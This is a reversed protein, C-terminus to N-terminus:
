KGLMARAMFLVNAPREALRRMFYPYWQVGFPVYIRVRYGEEALRQQWDRRVGYIMQFEFRDRGIGREKVITKARDLLRHDHTGVAPYFGRAHAEGSFSRDLLRAFSADVDRKKRWAVESPENYAGKVLRGSGGREIISALDKETRHLYSQLALRFDDHADLLAHYVRLTADTTPSDEIDMEVGIRLARSKELLGRTNELLVDEGFGLGLHSPKISITSALGEEHIRDLITMYEGAARRADERTKVSEGLHNLTATMGSQNLSRVVGLADELSEGAIFRRSVRRAPGFGATLRRIAESHSLLIFFTRLM